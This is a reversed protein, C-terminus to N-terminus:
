PLNRELPRLPVLDDAGICSYVTAVRDRLADLRERWARADRGAQDVTVGRFVVSAEPRVQGLADLSTSTAVALVPYGATVGRGRHLVLLEDGPPVEIAGVPIGRSIMEDARVREPLSGTMRLGIHDSQTSVRYPADFLRRSTGAFEEIDPGDTVDVYATDGFHPRDVGFHFLSIGFYPNVPAATRARLAIAAGDALVTGFGIVTDPACSGLLDPVDFSGHVAVYTRMGATMSALRVEQGAVVPVPEWMPRACGDVTVEMSAGTVAILVDTDPVFAVDFATAEIIPANEDNAVLINAVRASYQDLAGNVPLGFAPGRARGLDTVASRGAVTVVLRPSM